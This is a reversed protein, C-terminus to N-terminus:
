SLHAFHLIIFYINKRCDFFCFRTLCTPALKPGREDAGERVAVLADGTLEINGRALVHDTSSRFSGTNRLESRGEGPSPRPRADGVVPLILCIEHPQGSLLSQSGEQCYSSTNQTFAVRSSETRSKPHPSHDLFRSLKSKARQLDARVMGPGRAIRLLPRHNKARRTSGRLMGCGDHMPALCGSGIRVEDKKANALEGRLHAFM